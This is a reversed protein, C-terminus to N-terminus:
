GSPAKRAPRRRPPKGAPQARRMARVYNLLVGNIATQYGAGLGRFHAIVEQDLRLSILKKPAKPAVVVALQPWGEPPALLPPDSDPDEAIARELASETMARVRARDSRSEGRERM